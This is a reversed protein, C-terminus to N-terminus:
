SPKGTVAWLVNTIAANGGNRSARV